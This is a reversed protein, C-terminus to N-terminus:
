DSRARVFYDDGGVQGGKLLLQLGDIARGRAQVQCWPSGTAFMGICTLMDAGLAQVIYGSTDGGAVVLRRLGCAEILETALGGLVPGLRRSSEEPQIGIRTLRERTRAVEPDDPGMATYLIVSWGQGLLRLAQERVGATAAESTAADLLEPVALRIGAFGHALAYDLQRATVPSCSGSLILTQHEDPLPPQLTSPQMSSSHPTPPQMSHSQITSSQSSPSGCPESRQLGSPEAPPVPQMSSVPLLSASGGNPELPLAGQSEPVQMRGSPMSPMARLLGASRWHAALAREMGSSGIVFMPTEASEAEEWILRGVTELRGADLADFLVLDPQESELLRELRERVAAYEGELALIDMLSIRLETQRLLHLRLDAEGMPTVPHQSMTPHRDLRHVQGQAAAFHQGFVTYRGLHPAGALLPIFRGGFLRRGLDAAKGISGIHPASDFTSCIKYHVIAADAERLRGLIPTLELEMAEPSLARGIGAVGYAELEAYQERLQAPTPPEMFLGSRVGAQELTELVDTSGTFDDGYYSLKLRPKSPQDM